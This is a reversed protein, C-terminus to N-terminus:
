QQQRISQQVCSHPEAVPRQAPSYCPVGASSHTHTSTPEAAPAVTAPPPRLSPVLFQGFTWTLALYTFNFHRQARVKASLSENAGNQM